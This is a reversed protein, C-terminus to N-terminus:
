GRSVRGMVPPRDATRVIRGKPSRATQGCHKCSGYRFLIALEDTADYEGGQGSAGWRTIYAEKLDIATSVPKGTRKAIRAETCPHRYIALLASPKYTPPDDLNLLDLGAQLEEETMIQRESLVFPLVRM